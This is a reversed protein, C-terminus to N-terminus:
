RHQKKITIVEDFGIQTVVGKIISWADEHEVNILKYGLVEMVEEIDLKEEKLLEKLLILVKSM